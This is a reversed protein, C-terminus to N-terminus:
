VTHRRNNDCIEHHYVHDIIVSVNFGYGATVREMMTTAIDVSSESDLNGSMMGAKLEQM